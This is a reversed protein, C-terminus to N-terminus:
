IRRRAIARRLLDNVRTQWGPGSAKLADMVDADVRMNLAVKPRELRPRGRMPKLEDFEKDSLEYTDPDASIGRAIQADEGTTPIITGPKLKPM